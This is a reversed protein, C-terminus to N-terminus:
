RRRATSNDGHIIQLVNSIIHIGEDTETDESSSLLRLQNLSEQLKIDIGSCKIILKGKQNNAVLAWVMCAVMRKEELSGDSLKQHLVQLFDGSGLLRPRNLQHFSINRLVCLAAMKIATKSSATLMILLDLADTIKPVALQGEAHLTFDSMFGLWMLEVAEWQKQKKTVSPHLKPLCQFLNSKAIVNRCEQSQCSNTLLQFALSLVASEPVRNTIEMERHILSVIEHLLSLSSPTKRLGVGPVTTTLVLSQTASLCATTFTSLMKLAGELLSSVACCWVWLKHVVDSLGLEAAVLKVDGDASLFNTLM